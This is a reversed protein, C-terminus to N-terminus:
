WNAAPKERMFRALPTDPLVKLNEAVIKATFEAGQRNTHPGSEFLATTAERGIKYSAFIDNGDIQFCKLGYALGKQVITESGTQLARPVSIAWFNNQCFFITPTRFVGAFNMAEHFDGESTAGDGFYAVACTEEGRLRAAWSAGVAHLPHTGVPVAIPFVNVRSPVRQGEESGM